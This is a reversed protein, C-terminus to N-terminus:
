DAEQLTWIEPLTRYENAYDLGYGVVFENAIEFGVFDAKIEVERREQKNLLVCTRVEKAGAENLMDTLGLLTTGTDAIDDVMLVKKGQLPIRELGQVQLKGSSETSDGYSSAKIFAIRKHPAKAGQANALERSLDATFMYAGTLASLLIDYDYADAIERALTAVRERTKDAPILPKESMRFM